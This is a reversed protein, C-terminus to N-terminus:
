LRGHEIFSYWLDPDLYLDARYGRYQKGIDQICLQTNRM